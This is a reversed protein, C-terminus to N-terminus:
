QPSSALVHEIKELLADLDFPKAVDLLHRKNLEQYPLNASMVIAPVAALEKRAHLQDYLELGTMDPLQYNLLFLAPRVEQIARLAEQGSVVLRPRYATEGAIVLVLLEGIAPNDEVILISKSATNESRAAQQQTM